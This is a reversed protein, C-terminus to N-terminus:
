ISLSLVNKLVDDFFIQVWKSIPEQKTTEIEEKSGFNVYKVTFKGDDTFYLERPRIKEIGKVDCLRIFRHDEKDFYNLELPIVRSGHQFKEYNRFFRFMFRESTNTSKDLFNISFFNTYEASGKFKLTQYKKSDIETSYQYPIIDINQFEDNLLDAAREFELYVQKMRSQWLEFERTERKRAVAEETQGWKEAWEAARDTEIKIRLYESFLEHCGKYVKQILPEYLGVDAFSLMEYYESRQERKINCIPYGKKLLILNMLLRSVRGNGDKFPHIYVFQHQAIASVIIPNRNINQNIWKILEEMLSPVAIPEPPRHESGSIIVGIKRYEGPMLDPSEGILLSHLSRVDTERLTQDKKSLERLLDYAKGLHRVEVSQQIPKGSIDIGESLVVITEQLTLRNGEIGTSNYIHSAKFHEELKTAAIKDLPGHKRFDEIQNHFNELDDLLDPSLEIDDIFIM